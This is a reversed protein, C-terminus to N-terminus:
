PQIECATMAKHLHCSCAEMNIAFNVLVCSKDESYALNELLSISGDDWKYQNSTTNYTAGTFISGSHEALFLIYIRYCSETHALLKFQQRKSIYLRSITKKTSEIWIVLLRKFCLLCLLSWLVLMKITIPQWGHQFM